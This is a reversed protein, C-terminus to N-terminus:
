TLLELMIRPSCRWAAPTAVGALMVPLLARSGDRQLATIHRTNPSFCVDRVQAAVDPKQGMLSMPLELKQLAFQDNRGM